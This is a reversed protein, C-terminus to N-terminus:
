YKRQKKKHDTHKWSGKEKKHVNFLHQNLDSLNTNKEKYSHTKLHKKM